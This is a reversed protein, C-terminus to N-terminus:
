RGTKWKSLCQANWQRSKVLCWTLVELGLFVLGPSQKPSLRLKNLFAHGLTNYYLIICELFFDNHLYSVSFLLTNRKGPLALPLFGEQWSIYSICNGNRSHSYGRSSPIAVWELIRAQLIGMSLPTQHRLSDSVVSTVSCAHKAYLNIVHSLDDHCKVINSLNLM